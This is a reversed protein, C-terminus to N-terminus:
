FTGNWVNIANKCAVSFSLWQQTPVGMLDSGFIMSGSTLQCHHSYSIKTSKAVQCQYNRLVAPNASWGVSIYHTDMDPQRMLRRQVSYIVTPEHKFGITVCNVDTGGQNCVRYHISSQWLQSLVVGSLTNYPELFKLYIVCWDILLYIICWLIIICWICWIFHVVYLVNNLNCLM